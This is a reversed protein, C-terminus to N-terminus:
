DRLVGDAMGQAIEKLEDIGPHAISAAALYRSATKWEVRVERVEREEVERAQGVEGEVNIMVASEDGSGRGDLVLFWNTYIKSGMKKKMEQLTQAIAVPSFHPFPTNLVVAANSEEGDDNDIERLEKTPGWLTTELDHIVTLIPTAGEEQEQEHVQTLFSNIVQLSIHTHGNRLTKM